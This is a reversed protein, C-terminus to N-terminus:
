AYDGTNLGIVINLIPRDVREYVLPAHPLGAPVYIADYADPPVDGRVPIPAGSGRRM